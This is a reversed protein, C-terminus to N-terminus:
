DGSPQATVNRTAASRDRRPPDSAAVLGRASDAYALRLAGELTESMYAEDRVVVIVRKLQALANQQSRIFLPEVYIVEDDVLLLSTHGRIVDNGSRNWWSIQESIKPNQDIIADAQEPGTVFLGKPVMLVFSRGYDDGDQYVMPIARLNRAQEPTFPMALAFQEEEASAPLVGGTRVLMHYPEMSFTIAKGKDIVPGLVEDADDWMDEMNFFYMPDAMHYYIYLDDFLAHFLQLPYTLQRRVEGPMRARDTFLGPYVAAWSDIVPGGAIKYLQVQGTAANVTAKVSDEVYNVRLTDTMEPTRSISKDGMYSHQSYPYQDSVTVANVLWTIQGGVITAYPNAELYLFPVVRQLRKLPQRDYHVRTDGTILGSFVMEWLEGSQWGFVARKLLSDMKVGAKADAPLVIEARGQATPHDLEAMQAVNSVAMSANGEGYYVAQDAAAIEQWAAKVPIQGSVFVPDGGPTAQGVPAMVMGHGHTFLMFRQGWWALWPQPELIPLERVASALVTKQGDITYRLVDVDLFDYYTRLKQQQRFNELAPGYIMNDGATQLIRQAHQPDVLKELYNVYAPWLPANRVAGSALVKDLEPMPDDGTRPVFEIERVRDFGYARRTAEIHREIYPLQIVPQNPEVRVTNRVRVGVAFAFDFAALAVAAGAALRLRRPWRDSSLGRARVHLGWLFVALLLTAAALIVATIRIQNLTSLLGNVDIFSAGTFVSTLKDEKLLLDYRGIWVGGALVFGLGTLAVLSPVTAVKGLWSVVRPGAASPSAPRSLHACLLSASSAVAFLGLLAWWSIWWAPLAFVYFGIDHGFVPDTRGFPLGHRWLLYAPYQLAMLYGALLGVIGGAGLLYRRARPQVPHALAPIAVSGMFLLACLVFLTSGTRFNTWFVDGFGISDLLWYDSLLRSLRDLLFVSSVAWAVLVGRQWLLGATPMHPYPVAPETLVDEGAAEASSTARGNQNVPQDAIRLVARFTLRSGRWPLTAVWVLGLSFHYLLSYLLAVTAAAPLGVGGILLAATFGWEFQGIGGPTVPVMRAIHGAVFAMLLLRFDVHLLVEQTSFAMTLLYAAVREMLFAAVVLFCLRALLAPRQLLERVHSQIASRHAAWRASPQGTRTWWYLVCGLVLAWFVQAMWDGWGITLLGVLAFVVVSLLSLLRLLYVASYARRARAGDALLVGVSATDGLQLPALQTYSAGTLFAHGHRWFSGPIAHYRAVEHFLIARLVWFLVLSATALLVVVWAVPEQSKMYYVHHAVGEVFGAHRDHYKVVGSDILLGLLRTNALVDWVGAFYVLSGLLFAGTLISLAMLSSAQRVGVAREVHATADTGAGNGSGAPLEPPPLVPESLPFGAAHGDQTPKVDYSRELGAAPV